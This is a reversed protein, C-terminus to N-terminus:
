LVTKTEDTSIETKAWLIYHLQTYMYIRTKDTRPYQTMTQTWVELIVGLYVPFRVLPTDVPHKSVGVVVEVFLFPSAEPTGGCLGTVM